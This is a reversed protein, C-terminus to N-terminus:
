DSFLAQKSRLNVCEGCMREQLECLGLFFCSVARALNLQSVQPMEKIWLLM